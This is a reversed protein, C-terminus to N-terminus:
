FIYGIGGTVQMIDTQVNMKSERNIYDKKEDNPNYFQINVRKYELNTASYDVNVRAFFRSFRYKIGAGVNWAFAVANDSQQKFEVLTGGAPTIKYNYEPSSGMGVGLLGRIEIFVGRDGFNINPGILLMGTNWRGITGSNTFDGIESSGKIYRQMEKEMASIDSNNVNGMFMATIGFSRVMQLTYAVNFAFGTQAFGGQLITDTLTKDSFDNYPVAAGLSVSLWNSPYRQATAFSAFCGIFVMLVMKKIM